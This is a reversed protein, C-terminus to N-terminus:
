VGLLTPTVMWSVQWNGADQALCVVGGKEFAIIDDEENGSLLFSALKSLHPMHAVIAINKAERVVLEAIPPAPSSPKLDENRVIPAEPGVFPALHQATQQARLKGSHWIEEVRTKQSLFSGVLDIVHEGHATLPRDTDESKDKAHGHQILLLKM